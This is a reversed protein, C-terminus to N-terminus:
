SLISAVHEEALGFSLTMGAGGTATFLYVGAEPSDFLDPQGNTMRAYIGNWSETQRARDLEAFQLLYERILANIQQKDFPDPAPGYEHSDGITLEGAEHQAVMVHIGNRVYAPMTEAFRQQLLARSPAAKFSEYHILSLGGCLAPGIRQEPNELAFRMMQLKCKTIPYTSFREPYLTEFDSGSCIFVLDASFIRGAVGITQGYVEKVAQGYHFRVNWQEELYAPLAAIAQRPNVILEDRSFLGGRCGARRAIASRQQVADKDLWEVPRGERSFIEFLEHLVQQEDDQYAVHLSGAPEYWIGAGAATKKWINRSRVALEYLRGQPQGIPWVMGFNRISAGCASLSREFVEVRFGHLALARATALGVIGAGVVIASRDPM